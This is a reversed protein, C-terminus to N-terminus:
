LANIRKALQSIKRAATNKHLLGRQASGHLAPMAKSMATAAAGKDGSEIAEEVIRVYSRLQSRRTRNVATRTKTQRIRKKASQHQAMAQIEIM